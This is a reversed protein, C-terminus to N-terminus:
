PTAAWTESSGSSEQSVGSRHVGAGSRVGGPEWNPEKEDHRHYVNEGGRHGVKEGGEVLCSMEPFPAPGDGGLPPRRGRQTGYIASYQAAGVARRVWPLAGQKGPM